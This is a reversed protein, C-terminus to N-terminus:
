RTPGGFPGCITDDVLALFGGTAWDGGVGGECRNGVSGERGERDQTCTAYVGRCDERSQTYIM